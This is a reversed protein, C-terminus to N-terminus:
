PMDSSKQSLIPPASALPGHPSPSQIVVDPSPPCEDQGEHAGVIEGGDVMPSSPLHLSPPSTFPSLAQINNSFPFDGTPQPSPPPPPTPTPSSSHTYALRAKLAAPLPTPLSAISSLPSHEEHVPLPSPDRRELGICRIRSGFTSSTWRSTVTLMNLSSTEVEAEEEERPLQSVGLSDKRTFASWSMQPWGMGKEVGPDVDMAMEKGIGKGLWLGVGLMESISGNSPGIVAYAGAAPTILSLKAFADFTINLFTPSHSLISFSWYCDSFLAHMLMLLEGKKAGLEGDM